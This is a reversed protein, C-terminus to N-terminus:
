NGSESSANYFRPNIRRHYILCDLYRGLSVLTLPTPGRSVSEEASLM